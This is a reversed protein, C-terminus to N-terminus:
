KLIFSKNLESYVQILYDNWVGPYVNWLKAHIHMGGKTIVM